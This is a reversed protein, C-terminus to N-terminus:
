KKLKLQQIEEMLKMVQDSIAIYADDKEQLKSNIVYERNEDKERLERIEKAIIQDINKLITLADNSKLYDELIDKESPRYYSDSVGITHGMLIEVNISKM